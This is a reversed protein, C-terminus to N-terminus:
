SHKSSQTDFCFSDLPKAPENIFCLVPRLQQSSNPFVRDSYDIDRVVINDLWCYYCSWLGVGRISKNCYYRRIPYYALLEIFYIERNTASQEKYCGYATKSAVRKIAAHQLVWYTHTNICGM